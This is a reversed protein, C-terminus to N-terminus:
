HAACAPAYGREPLADDWEARTLTRGAVRCARRAWSRPQIDWLEGRGTDDLTVLRTGGDVFAAALDHGALSPLAAGIPRLSAVDWLRTAGDDSTTALTQGDPSFTVTDVARTHTVLPRGRSRWARTDYFWVRGQEDGLVLLRGDPSFQLTRGAPARVTKLRALRPVSLIEISSAAGNPDHVAAALKTGDPSFTADAAVAYSSLEATKLISRRRVDWLRLSAPTGLGATALWRGDGSFGLSWAADAYARQLQGLPQRDRPDAFRVDGNTTTAAVARGDPALAVASVQTGPSVPIRGAPTLTRSDFVDVYGADDPVAFRGGDVTTAVALHRYPLSVGTPGLDAPGGSGRVFESFHMARRPPAPFPRALRRDGDLDWAIVTTDQGASYATRGKPAIAVRSVTGAHGTFTDIRRADAVNWVDLRGDAGATLLTRADPTFRLDTVAADHRDAAVRLNGTSLDLLRVSGDAAGLAVMRGDPSLASRTGAGRLRRLPRLTAADRIVTTNDAASSTVLRGPATFGVLAPKPTRAVQRPRDLRQGTRVDWRVIDASRGRSENRVVDAALVRSDPSFAITGLVVPFNVLGSASPPEAVLHTRFKHTRVDLLDVFDVGAVALRTGDPSFRVASIASSAPAAYPRGARRGTAADLFLVNGRDDGAALTRGDPSLDLATLPHGGGPMVRIAAPSRLLAELLNSRTTLSDDLEVGQRALLLARDLRRESLAQVGLRQAEAARAQNRASSRQDLAVLGGAVAVALLGAVAALVMRLARQTRGAEARSAGLFARETDTLEHEHGARWELAAALRAGRYVDGRDRGREDWDRAADAVHQQVRRGQADEDLWGRLRPWESLLAEHAVEVTAASITILRREALVGLV